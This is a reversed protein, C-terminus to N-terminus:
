RRDYRDLYALVASMDEPPEQSFTISKGTAPHVFGLVMAHLMHRNVHTLLTERRDLSMGEPIPHRNGYKSDGLIPFGKHATHVRIQHTRGTKLRFEVLAFHNFIKITRYSTFASKGSSSVFRPQGAAGDRIPANIESARPHPIGTTIGHYVREIRHTKFQRQLVRYTEITKPVVLIGSTEKDIRHIIRPKIPPRYDRCHYLLANILTGSYNRRAPHVVLGAPKNVVLLHDDEFVIDLPIPEAAVPPPEPWPWYVEIIDGGSIMRAPKCEERNVKVNHTEILLKIRTRSIDAVHSSIYLDLRTPRQGDPVRFIITKRRSTM